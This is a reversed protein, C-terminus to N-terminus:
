AGRMIRILAATDERAMRIMDEHSAKTATFHASSNELANEGFRDAIEEQMLDAEAEVVEYPRENGYTLENVAQFFRVLLEQDTGAVVSGPPAYRIYIEGQTCRVEFEDRPTFDSYANAANGRRITSAVTEPHKGEYPFRAFRGPNAKLSAVFDAYKTVRPGKKPPNQFNM